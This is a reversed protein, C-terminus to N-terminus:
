TKYLPAATLMEFRIPSPKQKSAQFLTWPLCVLSLMFDTETTREQSNTLESM